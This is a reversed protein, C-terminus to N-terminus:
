STILAQLKLPLQEPDNEFNLLVRELGDKKKSPTIGKHSAELQRVLTRILTAWNGGEGAPLLERLQKEAEAWNHKEAATKLAQIAKIHKPRQRAGELLVKELVDALGSFEDESKIGAIQDYAKRFNDPTPAIKSLALQKLAQRAIDIPSSPTQM